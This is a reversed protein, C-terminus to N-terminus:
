KQYLNRIDHSLNRLYIQFDRKSLTKEEELIGLLNNICENVLEDRYEEKFNEIKSSVEDRQYKLKIIESNIDIIKSM